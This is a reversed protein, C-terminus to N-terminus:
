RVDVPTTVVSHGGQLQGRFGGGGSRRAVARGAGAVAGVRRGGDGRGPCGAGHHGLLGLQEELEVFKVVFPHM